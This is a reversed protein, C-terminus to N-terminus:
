NGTHTHTRIVYTDQQYKIDIFYKFQISNDSGLIRVEIMIKSYKRSCFRLILPGSSLESTARLLSHIKEM